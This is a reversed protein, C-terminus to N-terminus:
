PRMQESQTSRWLSTHGSVILANCSLISSSSSLYREFYPPDASLKRRSDGVLLLSDDDRRRSTMRLRGAEPLKSLDSVTEPCVEGIISLFCKYANYYNYLEHNAITSCYTHVHTYTHTNHLTCQIHIIYYM